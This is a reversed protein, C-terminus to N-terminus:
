FSNLSSIDNALYKIELTRLKQKAGLDKVMFVRCYESEVVTNKDNITKITLSKRIEKQGEPIKISEWDLFGTDTMTYLYDEAQHYDLGTKESVEDITARGTQSNIISFIKVRMDYYHMYPGDKNLKQWAGIPRHKGGSNWWLRFDDSLNTDIIEDKSVYAIRAFDKVWTSDGVKVLGCKLCIETFQYCFTDEIVSNIAFFKHTFPFCPKQYPMDTRISPFRSKVFADIHGKGLSRKSYFLPPGVM